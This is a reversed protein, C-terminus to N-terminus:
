PFEPIGRTSSSPCNSENFPVADRRGLDQNRNWYRIETRLTENWCFSEKTAQGLINLESCPQVRRVRKLKKKEQRRHRTLDTQASQEQRRLTTSPKSLELVGFIRPDDQLLLNLDSELAAVESRKVELDMLIQTARRLNRLHDLSM